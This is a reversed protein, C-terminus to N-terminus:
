NAKLESFVMVRSCVPCKDSREMWEYICGLHFYHTCDTVIKPNENDFGDLCTPCVDEDDSFTCVYHSLAEKSSLKESFDKSGGLATPEKNDREKLAEKEKSTTGACEESPVSLEMVQQPHHGSQANNRPNAQSRRAQAVDTALEPFMTTTDDTTSPAAHVERRHFIAGYKNHLNHLFCRLCNCDVSHPTSLDPPADRVTLCCCLSGM